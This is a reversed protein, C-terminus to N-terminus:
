RGMGPVAIRMGATTENAKFDKYLWLSPTDKIGPPLALEFAGQPFASSRVYLRNGDVRAIEVPVFRHAGREYVGFRERRARCSEPDIRKNFSLMLERDSLRVARFPFPKTEYMTGAIHFEYATWSAYGLERATQHFGSLWKRGKIMGRGSGIDAQVALPLLPHLRRIDRVFPEYGRAYDPALAAKTWDPWHTQLMHLDPKVKAILSPADLGQMEKLRGVSDPGANVALSWTAVAIDPRADRAGGSGNVLRDVFGNVAEVRFRVWLAYLEPNNKYFRPSRPNAFDPMEYGYQKRFVAEALPGVDGYVGRRIGDWEPLYPEAVEFGDFPYRTLLRHVAETKWRAYPESFYSFREYGDQVPKLLKMRWERWGDPYGETSFTGNGLTMAWVFIGRERLARLLEEDIKSENVVFYRAIKYGAADIEEAVSEPSRNQYYPFLPDIQVSPGYIGNRSEKAELCKARGAAPQEAGEGIILAM